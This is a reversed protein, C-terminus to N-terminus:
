RRAADAADDPTTLLYAQTSFTVRGDHIDRVCREAVPAGPQQWINRGLSVLPAMEAVVGLVQRFDDCRVLALTANSTAEVLWDEDRFRVTISAEYDEGVRWGMTWGAKRLAEDWDCWDPDVGLDDPHDSWDPGHIRTM